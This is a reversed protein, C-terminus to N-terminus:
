EIVFIRHKVREEYDNSITVRAVYEGPEADELDLMVKNSVPDNDEQDYPLSMAVLGLEPVFITVQLDDQDIQNEYLPVDTYYDAEEKDCDCDEEYVYDETEDEWQWETTVYFENFTGEEVEEDYIISRIFLRSSAAVVISCAFIIALVLAIFKKM